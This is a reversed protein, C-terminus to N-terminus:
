EKSQQILNSVLINDNTLSNRVEGSPTMLILMELHRQLRVVASVLEIIIEKDTKHKLHYVPVSKNTDTTSIQDTAAKKSTKKKM